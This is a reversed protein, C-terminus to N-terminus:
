FHWSFVCNYNFKYHFISILTEIKQGKYELLMFRMLISIFM